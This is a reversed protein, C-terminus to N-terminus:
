RPLDKEPAAKAGSPNRALALMRDTEELSAGPATLYDFVFGGEDFQPLFDSGVFRYLGVGAILVM